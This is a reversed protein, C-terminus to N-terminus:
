SEEEFDDPEETFDRDDSSVLSGGSWVYDGSFSCGEEDFSLEFTLSKFRESVKTMLERPPGWPTEFSYTAVSTEDSSEVNPADSYSAGWKCGWNYNEWEYGACINPFRSFWEPYQQVAEKLLNSDYPALMVERPVPSLAHFSFHSKKAGSTFFSEDNMMVEMQIPTFKGWDPGSKSRDNLPGVYKHEYGNAAEIFAAVDAPTGTVTLTNSCWNPM